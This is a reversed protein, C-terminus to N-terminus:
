LSWRSLFDVLKISLNKLKPLSRCVEVVPQLSELPNRSLDLTTISPCTEEISPEGDEMASAVRQGDLIVIKLEKVQAQQRRIKDFGVEEAVKGSIIIQSPGAPNRAGYAGDAQGSESAYKDKLAAIFSLPTEAPRTPRVFSAATSSKRKGQLLIYAVRTYNLIAPSVACYM